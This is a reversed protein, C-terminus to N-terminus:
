AKNKDHPEDEDACEYVQPNYKRLAFLSQRFWWCHPEIVSRLLKTEITQLEFGRGKMTEIVYEPDRENHHGCGGQGPIAWSLILWDTCYRTINDLFVSENEPAIHEAVELCIVNTGHNSEKWIECMIVDTPKSLDANLIFGKFDSIDNIGITGEIGMLAGFGVKHLHALYTGKGCGYDIVPVDKPLINALAEALAPSHQHEKKATELDWIYPGNNNAM